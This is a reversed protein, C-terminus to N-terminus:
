QHPLNFISGSDFRKAKSNASLGDGPKGDRGNKVANMGLLGLLGDGGKGADITVKKRLDAGGGNQDEAQGALAKPTKQLLGGVNETRARHVDDNDVTSNDLPLGGLPGSLLEKAGPM